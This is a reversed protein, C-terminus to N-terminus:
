APKEEQFMVGARELTPKIDSCGAITRLTKSALFSAAPLNEAQSIAWKTRLPCSTGVEFKEGQFWATEM